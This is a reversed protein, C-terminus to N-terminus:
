LQDGPIPYIYDRGDVVCHAVFPRDAAKPNTTAIFVRVGPYPDAIAEITHDSPEYTRPHWGLPLLAAYMTAEFRVTGLAFREAQAALTERTDPDISGRDSFAMVAYGHSDHTSFRLEVTPYVGRRQASTWIAHAKRGRHDAFMGKMVSTFGAPTDLRAVLADM